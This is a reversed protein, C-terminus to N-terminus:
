QHWPNRTVLVDVMKVARLAPPNIELGGVPAEQDPRRGVGRSCKARNVICATDDAVDVVAAHQDILVCRDFQDVAVRELDRGTSSPEEALNADLRESRGLQLGLREGTHDPRMVMVIKTQCDHNKLQQKHPPMRKGPAIRAGAVHRNGLRDTPGSISNRKSRAKARSIIGPPRGVAISQTRLRPWSSLSSLCHPELGACQCWRPVDQGHHGISPVVPTGSKPRVALAVAVKAPNSTEASQRWSSAIGSGPGAGEISAGGWAAQLSALDIRPRRPRRLIRTGTAAIPAVTM